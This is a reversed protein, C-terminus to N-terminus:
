RRVSMTYTEKGDLAARVASRPSDVPPVQLVVYDEKGHNHRSTWAYCREATGHSQLNFIQVEGQWLIKGNCQETLPISAVHKSQCGYRQQIVRQLRMVDKDTIASAAAFDSPSVLEKTDM